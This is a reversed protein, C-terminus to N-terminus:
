AIGARNVGPSLACPEARQLCSLVPSIVPICSCERSPQHRPAACVQFAKVHNRFLGTEAICGPYLTAFTVGSKEHFRRHLELTTLMNCVQLWLAVTM